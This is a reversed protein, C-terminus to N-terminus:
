VVATWFLDLVPVLEVVEVCPTFFDAPLELVVSLAADVWPFAVGVVEFETWGEDIEPSNVPVGM